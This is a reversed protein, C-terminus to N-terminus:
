HGKYNLWIQPIASTTWDFQVNRAFCPHALKLVTATTKAMDTSNLPSQVAKNDERTSM